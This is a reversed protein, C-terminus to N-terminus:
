LATQLVRRQLATTDDNCDYFIIANYIYIYIYIPYNMLGEPVESSPQAVSLASVAPHVYRTGTLYSLFKSHGEGETSM